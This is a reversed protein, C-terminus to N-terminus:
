CHGQTEVKEKRNRPRGMSGIEPAGEVFVPSGKGLHKGITEATKGFATVDIFDTEQQNEGQANQYFRSVALSIDAIATGSTTHRLEPDRTLRGALSVRNLNM